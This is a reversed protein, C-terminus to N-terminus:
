RVRTGPDFPEMGSVNGKGVTKFLVGDLRSAARTTPAYKAPCVPSHRELVLGVQVGTTEPALRITAAPYRTTRGRWRTQVKAIRNIMGLVKASM